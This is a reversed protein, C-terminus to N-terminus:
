RSTSSSSASRTDLDIVDRDVAPHLSERRQEGVGSAEGPVRRSIPPKDVFRLQKGQVANDPLGV